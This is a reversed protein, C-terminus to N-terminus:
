PWISEYKAILDDELKDFKEDVKQRAPDGLYWALIEEAGRHFPIRASWGPVVHKIKTNDFMVSHTKDGLLSGAMQPVEQAIFDSPIHIMKAEVGLAKVAKIVNNITAANRAQVAKPTKGNSQVGLQVLAGDPLVNVM